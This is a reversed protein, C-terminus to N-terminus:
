RLGEGGRERGEGFVGSERRGRDLSAGKIGQVRVGLDGELEAGREALDWRLEHEVHASDGELERYKEERKVRGVGTWVRGTSAVGVGDLEGVDRATDMEHVM